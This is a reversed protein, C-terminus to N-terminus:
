NRHGLADRIQGLESLVQAFGTCIGTSLEIMSSTIEPKVDGPISRKEMLRLLDASVPALDYDDSNVIQLELEVGMTLPQSQAFRELAM